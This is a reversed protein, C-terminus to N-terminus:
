AIPLWPVVGAFQMGFVCFALAAGNVVPFFINQLRNLM